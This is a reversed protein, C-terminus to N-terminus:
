YLTSAFFSFVEDGKLPSDAPIWVTGCRQKHLTWHLCLRKRLKKELHVEINQESMDYSLRNIKMMCVITSKARIHNTAGRAVMFIFRPEFYNFDYWISCAIIMAFALNFRQLIIACRFAHAISSQDTDCEGINNNYSLYVDFHNIPSVNEITFIVICDTETTGNIVKRSFANKSSFSQHEAATPSSWNMSEIAFTGLKYTPMIQVSSILLSDIAEYKLSITEQRLTLMKDQSEFCDETKREYNKRDETKISIETTSKQDFKPNHGYKIQFDIKRFRSNGYFTLDIPLSTNSQFVYRELSQSGSVNKNSNKQHFGNAIHEISKFNFDCCTIPDPDKKSDGVNSIAKRLVQLQGHDWLFIPYSHTTTYGQGKGIPQHYVQVAVTLSFISVPKPGVNHIFMTLSKREGHVFSLCEEILRGRRNKLSICIRPQLEVVNILQPTDHLKFKCLMGFLQIFADTFQIKGAKTPIIKIPIVTVYKPHILASTPVTQIMTEGQTATTTLLIKPTFIAIALPNDITIEVQVPEGVVWIKADNKHNSTKGSAFPNHFTGGYARRETGSKNVKFATFGASVDDTSVQITKRESNDFKKGSKDVISRVSLRLPLMSYSNQLLKFPGGNYNSTVSTHMAEVSAGHRPFHLALYSQLIRSMTAQNHFDNDDHVYKQVQFSALAEVAHNATTLVSRTSQSFYVLLAMANWRLKPFGASARIIAADHHTDTTTSSKSKNIQSSQAMKGSSFSISQLLRHLVNQAKFAFNSCDLGDLLRALIAVFYAQKRHAQARKCILAAQLVVAVKLHLEPTSDSTVITKQRAKHLRQINSPESFFITDDNNNKHHGSNNQRQIKTVLTIKAISNTNATSSSNSSASRHIKPKLVKPSSVYTDSHSHMSTGNRIGSM